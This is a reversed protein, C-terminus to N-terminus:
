SNDNSRRKRNAKRYAARRRVRRCGACVRKRPPLPVGCDPCPRIDHAVATHQKGRETHYQAAVDARRPDALICQEFYGCRADDERLLCPEGETGVTALKGPRPVPVPFGICGGRDNNACERRALAYPAVTKGMSRSENRSM